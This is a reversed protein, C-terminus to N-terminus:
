IPRSKRRSCIKRSTLVMESGEEPVKYECVTSQPHGPPLIPFASADVVRLGHVGFVKAKHDVVAMSDSHVGMKCTCSAHYITMVTEKILDLIEGDSQYRLGPFYEPGALVPRMAESQFAERVRRYAAVAVKQDTETDLWNPNIIPLDATDKSSITVNGRSTPAILCGIISGYQGRKPQQAFPDSFNGVFASAALYQFSYAKDLPIKLANGVEIEPWDGPFWSLDYENQVSLSTRSHLPLKEFAVYDTSPNTLIGSKLLLYDALQEAFYVPSQTMRTFTTVNVPYSPGFFVHDWMNQGVGPLDVLVDINHRKLIEGPGIGSVMLIQPSQFAGASVIVERMARLTIDWDWFAWRRRAKVGIARKRHNFLITKVMTNEQVTLSPLRQYGRLFAAESSSRTQDWPRITMAIYQHGMLSGNNFGETENIGIATFGDRASTSFPMAYRPYSVQLPQGTEEFASENSRFPPYSRRQERPKYSVTKEFFPLVNDWLYSSDNVLEAWMEM